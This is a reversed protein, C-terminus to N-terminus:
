WMKENKVKSRQGCIPCFNDEVHGHNCSNEAECAPCYYEDGEKIVEGKISKVEGCKYFLRPELRTERDVM